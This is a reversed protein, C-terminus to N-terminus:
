KTFEEVHKVAAADQSNGARPAATDPKLVGIGPGLEKQCAQESERFELLQLLRRLRKQGVSKWGCIFLPTVAIIWLDLWINRHRLYWIDMAFTQASSCTRSNLVQALGTIGPPVNFRQRILPGYRYLVSVPVPRPGIWGMDGRLINGLQALEDIGCRLVRGLPTVRSDNAEVVIKSGAIVVPKCNVKMTRYKM